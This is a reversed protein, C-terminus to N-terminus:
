TCLDVPQCPYFSRLNVPANFFVLTHLLVVGQLAHLADVKRDSDVKVWFVHSIIGVARTSLRVFVYGCDFWVGRQVRFGAIAAHAALVYHDSISPATTKHPSGVGYM